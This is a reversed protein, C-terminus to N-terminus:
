GDKEEHRYDDGFAGYCDGYRLVKYRNIKDSAAEREPPSTAKRYNRVAEILEKGKDTYKM